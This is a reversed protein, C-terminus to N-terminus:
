KEHYLKCFNCINRRCTNCWHLAENHDICMQCQILKRKSFYRNDQEIGYITKKQDLSVKNKRNMKGLASISGDVSSLDHSAQFQSSHLGFAIKVMEMSQMKLLSMDLQPLISSHYKVCQLIENCYKKIRQFHEMTIGKSRLFGMNVDKSNQFYESFIAEVWPDMIRRQKGESTDFIGQDAISGWGVHNLRKNHGKEYSTSQRLSMMNIFVPLTGKRYKNVFPRYVFKDSMATEYDQDLVHRFDHAEEKSKGINKITEYLIRTSYKSKPITWQKNYRKKMDPKDCIGLEKSLMARKQYSDFGTSKHVGERAQVLLSGQQRM